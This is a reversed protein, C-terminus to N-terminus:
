TTETDQGNRIISCHVHSHEYRKSIKIKMRKYICGSTLNNAWLFIKIKQAAEMGNKM